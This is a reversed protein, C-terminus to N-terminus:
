EFRFSLFCVVVWKIVEVTNISYGNFRTEKILMFNIKYVIFIM